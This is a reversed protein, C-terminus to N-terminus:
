AVRARALAAAHAVLAETLLPALGGTLEEDVILRSPAPDPADLEIAGAGVVTEATGVLATAGMVIRARLDFNVLRVLALEDLDAGARRALERIGPLDRGRVLRLTVRPGRPLPYSSALLAGSHHSVAM